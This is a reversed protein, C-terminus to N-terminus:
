KSLFANPNHPKKQVASRTWIHSGFAQVRGWFRLKSGGQLYSLRIYPVPWTSAMGTRQKKEFCISSVPTTIANSEFTFSSSAIRQAGGQSAYGPNQAGRYVDEWIYSISCPHFCAIALRREWLAHSNHESQRRFVVLEWQLSSFPSDDGHVSDPLRWVPSSLGHSDHWVTSFDRDFSEEEGGGQFQVGSVILRSVAWAATHCDAAHLDQIDWGWVCGDLLLFWVSCLLVFLMETEKVSPLLPFFFGLMHTSLCDKPGVTERECMRILTVAKRRWM